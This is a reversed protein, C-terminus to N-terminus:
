SKLITRYVFIAMVESAVTTIDFSDKRPINAKLKELNIEIKRLARSRKFRCSSEM